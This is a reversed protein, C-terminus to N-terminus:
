FLELILPSASAYAMSSNALASASCIAFFASAQFSYLSAAITSMISLTLNYM